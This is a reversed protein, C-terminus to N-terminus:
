PDTAHDILETLQHRPLARIDEHVPVQFVADVPLEDGLFLESLVGLDYDCEAAVPRNETGGASLVGELCDGSGGAAPPGCLRVAWVM